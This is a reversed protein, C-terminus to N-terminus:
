RTDSNTQLREILKQLRSVMFLDAITYLAALLWGSSLLMLLAIWAWTALNGQHALLLSLTSAAIPYILLGTGLGILSARLRTPKRPSLIVFLWLFTHIITAVIAGAFTSLNVLSNHFNRESIAIAIVTTVIALIILTLSYLLGSVNTRVKTSM